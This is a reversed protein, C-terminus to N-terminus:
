EDGDTIPEWYLGEKGCPSRLYKDDVIHEDLEQPTLRFTLADAPDGSLMHVALNCRYDDEDGVCDFCCHDCEICTRKLM